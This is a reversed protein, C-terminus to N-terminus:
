GKRESKARIVVEIKYDSFRNCIFFLLFSVWFVDMALPRRLFVDSLLVPLWMFVVLTFALLLKM